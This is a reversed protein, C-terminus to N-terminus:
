AKATVAWARAKMGISGDVERPLNVELRDRLRKRAEETLSAVYGPAPGTGHTFPRWYDDFDPFITPTDLASCAV